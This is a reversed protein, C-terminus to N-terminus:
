ERPGAFCHLRNLTRVFIRGDSIAPTAICSEGMDNRALFELQPGQKLVVLFGNEGMVYIKGDGAVPSAYYNGFNRIRQQMWVTEGTDADFCSSIGGKKIVLLRGDVVLPSAINSSVKHDLNWVLHTKTVDGQGGGRISQVIDGGGVMNTPSQFAADIEDDVLFGDQDRDGADFREWFSRGIERKDLKGDQNTDKWQLLAYKLVRDTDGFSQVSVYIRDGHVAPTTMITRLLSNCSWLEQGTRPDYGQLKGTGAIVLDERGGAACIVPVAYGALMEPRPTRWRTEGTQKDVALLFPSLDDDQNLIVLDRYVIPSHAAGWAMLYDPQPVPHKWAIKGDALDLAMLGLTSFYVYVREGDTAPTSSAHTNPSMIAPLEGTDFEQKWLLKGDAAGHCFVAFRQKDVMATTCVRGAAVVPSAIGEGLTASWAVNQEHSFEVPLPRTGTSVGTANPGRFQPWDDALAASHWGAAGVLCAAVTLSVATLLAGPLLIRM